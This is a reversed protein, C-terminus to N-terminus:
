RMCVKTDGKSWELDLARGADWLMVALGALFLYVSGGLFSVPIQWVYLQWLEPEVQGDITEHDKSLLNRLIFLGSPHTAVRYLAVAQEAATAISTLALVLGSYWIAKVTWGSSALSPWTFATAVVGAVLASERLM